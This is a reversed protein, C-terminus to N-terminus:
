FLAKRADRAFRFGTLGSSVVDKGLALYQFRTGLFEPHMLTQLSRREDEAPEMVTLMGAMFHHQDTFGVMKLGCQEAQEAVSSWEVHSAIDAHGVQLLPSSVPLHGAYGQLTGLRREAAFFERHPFGYDVALIFGRQLKSAVNEVWDLVALNIETEYTGGDESLLNVLRAQLQQEGIPQTVFQFSEEGQVVFKERWEHGDRAILRVPMSDLLENSFHVGSFKPVEDLSKWWVVRESFDRLLETQQAELVPLPEVISYRLRSFFDPERKRLTELVDRAFEGSHAGQEVITFDEPRGLLNWMEAFQAALVKGFLPGVSVNTFYDGRRGIRCRGSGYYGHEPHYLALEMFRDFRMPGRRRIEERILDVLDPNGPDM